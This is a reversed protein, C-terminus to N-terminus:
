KKVGHSKRMHSKLYARKLFNLGCISCKDGSVKSRGHKFTVHRLLQKKTSLVIQCLKCIYKGTTVGNTKVGHTSKMHFHYSERSKFYLTCDRCKFFTPSKEDDSQHVPDVKTPTKLLSEKIIEKSIKSLEEHSVPLNSDVLESKSEREEQIDRMEDSRVFEEHVNRHCSYMKLPKDVDGFGARLDLTKLNTMKNNLSRVDTTFSETVEKEDDTGYVQVDVETFEDIPEEKMCLTSIYLANKMISVRNRREMRSERELDQEDIGKTRQDDNRGPQQDIPKKIENSIEIKSSSDLTVKPSSLDISASEEDQRQIKLGPECTTEEDVMELARKGHCNETDSEKVAINTHKSPSPKQTIVLELQEDLGVLINPPKQCVEKLKNVPIALEAKTILTKPFVLEKEGTNEADPHVCIKNTHDQESKSLWEENNLKTEITLLISSLTQEVDKAIINDKHDFSVANSISEESSQAEEFTMYLDQTQNLKETALPALNDNRSLRLNTQTLKADSEKQQTAAEDQRNTLAPHLKSSLDIEWEEKIYPRKIAVCDKSVDEVLKHLVDHVIEEDTIPCVENLIENITDKVDVQIRREKEDEIQQLAETTLCDDALSLLSSFIDEATLYAQQDIKSQYDFSSDFEVDKSLMTFGVDSESHQQPSDKGVNYQDLDGLLTSDEYIPKMQQAYLEDEYVYYKSRKRRSTQSNSAQQPSNTRAEKAANSANRASRKRSGYGGKRRKNNRKRKGKTQDEQTEVYDNREVDVVNVVDVDIEGNRQPQRQPQQQQENESSPAMVATTESHFDAMKIHLKVKLPEVREVQVTPNDTSNRRSRSNTSKITKDDKQDDKRQNRMLVRVAREAKGIKKKLARVTPDEDDSISPKRSSPTTKASPPETTVNDHASEKKKKLSQVRDFIRMLAEESLTTNEFSVGEIENSTKADDKNKEGTASETPPSPTPTAQKKNGSAKFVSEVQQHLNIRKEKPQVTVESPTVIEQTTPVDTKSQNKLQELKLERKMKKSKMVVEKAKIMGSSKTSKVKPVVSTQIISVSPSPNDANDEKVFDQMQKRRSQRAKLADMFAKKRQTQKSQRKGIVIGSENQPSQSSIETEIKSDTTQDERTDDTSKQEEDTQQPREKMKAEMQEKLKLAREKEKRRKKKLRKQEIRRERDKIEEKSLMKLRKNDTSDKESTSPKRQREKKTESTHNTQKERLERIKALEQKIDTDSLKKTPKNSKKSSDNGKTINKVSPKTTKKSTHIRVNDPNETPKIKTFTVGVAPLPKKVQHPKHHAKISNRPNLEKNITEVNKHKSNVHIELDVFGAFSRGCEGCLFGKRETKDVPSKPASLNKKSDRLPPGLLALISKATKSPSEPPPPKKTPSISPSPKTTPPFEIKKNDFNKISEHTVLISKPKITPTHSPPAPSQKTSQPTSPKKPLINSQNPTQQLSLATPTLPSKKIPVETTTPKPAQSTSPKPPQNLPLNTVKPSPLPPTKKSITPSSKPASWHAIGDTTLPPKPALKQNTSQPTTPSTMVEQEPEDGISQLFALYENEMSDSGKPKRKHYDSLSLKRGDVKLEKISPSVLPSPPLRKTPESPKPLPPPPPPPPSDSASPSLIHPKYIDALKSSSFTTKPSTLRPDSGTPSLVAPPSLISSSPSEIKKHADNSHKLKLPTPLDILKDKKSSESDTRKRKNEIQKRKTEKEERRNILKQLREIEEPVLKKNYKKLKAKLETSNMTSRELKRLFGHYKTRVPKDNASPLQENTPQELNNDTSKEIDNNPPKEQPKSSAAEHNITTEEEKGEEKDIVTKIEAEQKVSTTSPFDFSEPIVIPSSVLPTSPTSSISKNLLSGSPSILSTAVPQQLLQHQNLFSLTNINQALMTNSQQYQLLQLQLLKQANLEIEAKKQDYTNFPTPLSPTTLETKPTTGDHVHSGASSTSISRKRTTEDCSDRISDKSTSNQRSLNPASQGKITLAQDTLKDLFNIMSKKEDEDRESSVSKLGRDITKKVTLDRLDEIFYPQAPLSESLETKSPLLKGIDFKQENKNESKNPSLLPQSISPTEERSSKRKSEKSRDRKSSPSSKRRGRDKDRERSRRRERSRDRGRSRSRSRSYSRRRGRSRSRSRYRGRSRSRSRSHYRGKSRSRSRYRGRSRSRTRSRSHSYRRRRSRSRRRNKRNRDRSTSRRGRDRSRSRRTRDYSISRRSRDRSTSRRNKDRSREPSMRQIRKTHIMGRSRASQGDGDDEVEGEEMEDNPDNPDDVNNAAPPLKAPSMLPLHLTSSM